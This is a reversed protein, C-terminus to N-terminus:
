IKKTGCWSEADEHPSQLKLALNFNEVAELIYSKGKAGGIREGFIKLNIGLNSQSAASEKQWGSKQQVAIAEKHCSIADSLAQRGLDGAEREGRNRLCIGLNNHAMAWQYAMSERSISSILSKFATEALILYTSGSQESGHQGLRVAREFMWRLNEGEPSMEEAQKWLNAVAADFRLALMDMEVAEDWLRDRKQQREEQREREKVEDLELQKLFPSAAEAPDSLLLELAKERLADFGAGENTPQSKERFAAVVEDVWNALWASREVQLIGLEDMRSDLESRLKRFAPDDRGGVLVEILEQHRAEARADADTVDNRVGRVEGIATEVGTLIAQGQFAPCAAAAVFVRELVDRAFDHRLSPAAFSPDSSVVGELTLATMSEALRDSRAWAERLADAGFLGDSALAKALAKEAARVQTEDADQAAPFERSVSKRIATVAQECDPRDRILTKLWASGFIAALGIAPGAVPAVVMGTAVAACGIAFEGAKGM